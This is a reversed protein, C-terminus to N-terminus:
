ADIETCLQASTVVTHAKVDEILARIRAIPASPDLPVFAAGAGLIGLLSAYVAPTKDALVVVTSEPGAGRDLLWQSVAKAQTRLERYSLTDEGVCIAVAEPYADVTEEFGHLM